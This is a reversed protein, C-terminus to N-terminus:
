LTLLLPVDDHAIEVGKLEDHVLAGLALSLQDLEQAAKDQQGEDPGEDGEGENDTHGHQGDKGKQKQTQDEVEPLDEVALQLIGHGRTLHGEGANVAAHLALLNQLDGNLVEALDGGAGKLRIGGKLLLAHGLDIGEDGMGGGGVLVVSEELLVTLEARDVKLGGFLGELEQAVVIGDGHDSQDGTSTVAFFGVVSFDGFSPLKERGKAKYCIFFSHHLIFFSYNRHLDKPNTWRNLSIAPFRLNGDEM